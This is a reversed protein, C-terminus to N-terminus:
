PLDISHSNLSGEYINEFVHTILAVHNYHPEVSIALEMQKM